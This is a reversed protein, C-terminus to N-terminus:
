IINKNDFELLIVEKMGVHERERYSHDIHPPSWRLFHFMFLNKSYVLKSNNYYEGMHINQILYISSTKHICKSHQGLPNTNTNIYFKDPLDLDDGIDKYYNGMDIPNEITDAWINAFMFTDVNPYKIVIDKISVNKNTIMYEDLDNYVIYQTLPIGYKYLSHNLHGAQAHGFCQKNNYYYTYDWNIMTVNENKFELETSSNYYLYFHEVGQKTYYNVFKRLLYHDDKFLTTQALLYKKEFVLHQLIYNKTNNNFTVSINIDHNPYAMIDYVSVIMWETYLVTKLNIPKNYNFKIKNLELKNVIPSIIILEYNRCFIDFFLYTTDYLHFNNISDYSM